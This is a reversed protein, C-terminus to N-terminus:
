PQLTETWSQSTDSDKMKQRLRKLATHLHVGVNSTTLGTVEAIERYSLEDIFKLCVIERQQSSLEDLLQRVIEKRDSAIADAEPGRENSIVDPLFEDSVEKRRVRVRYIDLARNRCVRYLWAGPPDGVKEPKQRCLKIFSEQVVDRATELDGTFQHTYRLLSGEYQQVARRLWAGRNETQQTTNM